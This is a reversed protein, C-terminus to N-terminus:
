VVFLTAVLMVVLSGIQVLVDVVAAVVIVVVAKVLLMTSVVVLGVVLIVWIMSILTPKKHLMLAQLIEQALVSRVTKKKLM